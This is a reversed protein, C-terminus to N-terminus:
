RQRWPLGEAKWGNKRGRHGQENPDGEFGGSINYSSTYGLATMAKAAALSRVGSRCLFCLKSNKDAGAGTLQEQLRSTFEGDVVMDPFIQWQQLILKQMGPELDPTGVYAWEALTRVDIIYATADSGMLEWCERVTLDGAYSM